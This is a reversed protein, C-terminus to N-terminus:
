GRASKIDWPHFQNQGQSKPQTTRMVTADIVEPIRSESDVDEAQPSKSAYYGGMEAVIEIARLRVEWAPAKRSDTIKGKFKCFETEEAELAPFLYKHILGEPTLGVEFLAYQVRERISRSAQYASQAPNRQSYGARRAAETAPVAECLLKFYVQQKATLPRKRRGRNPNKITM